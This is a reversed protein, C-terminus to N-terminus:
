EKAEPRPANKKAPVSTLRKRSAAQQQAYASDPQRYLVSLQRRIPPLQERGEERTAQQRLQTNMAYAPLSILMILLAIIKKM